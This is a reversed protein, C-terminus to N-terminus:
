GSDEKAISFVITYAGAVLLATVATIELQCLVTRALM